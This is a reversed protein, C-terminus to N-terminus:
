DEKCGDCCQEIEDYCYDCVFAGCEPCEHMEEGGIPRDCIECSYKM